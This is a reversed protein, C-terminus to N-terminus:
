DEKGARLNILRKPRTHKPVDCIEPQSEIANEIMDSNVSDTQSKFINHSEHPESDPEETKAETETETKTTQQLFQEM